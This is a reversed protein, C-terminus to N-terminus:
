IETDDKTHFMTCFKKFFREAYLDADVSSINAKDTRWSKARTELKKQVTYLQFIDIIGMFYHYPKPRGNPDRAFLGGLEAQFPSKHRNSESSTGNDKKKSRSSLMEVKQRMRSRVENAFVFEDEHEVGMSKVSDTRLYAQKAYLEEEAIKVLVETRRGFERSPLSNDKSDEVAFDPIRDYRHIGLLLSYDMIGQRRLFEVDAEIQFTLLVLLTEQVWIRSHKDDFDLDKWVVKDPGHLLLEKETAKRQYTSGKIDYIEHIELPTDFVNYMVVFRSISALHSVKLCMIMKPLMTDMNKQLHLSYPFLFNEKVLNWEARSMSKIILRRDETLFFYSGSKGKSNNGLLKGGYCLSQLLSQQTEGYIRQIKKFEFPDMLKVSCKIEPINLVFGKHESFATEDLLIKEFAIQLREDWTVGKLGEMRKRGNSVDEELCQKCDCEEHKKCYRKLGFGKQAEDKGRKGTGVLYRLSESTSLMEENDKPVEIHGQSASRKKSLSKKKRRVEVQPSSFKLLEGAQDDEEPKSIDLDDKTEYNKAVYSSTPDTSRTEGALVEPQLFLSPERENEPSFDEFQHYDSVKPKSTASRLLDLVFSKEHANQTEFQLPPSTSNVFNLKFTRKGVVSDHITCEQLNVVRDAHNLNSIDPPNGDDSHNFIYITTTIVRITSKIWASKQDNYYSISISWDTM